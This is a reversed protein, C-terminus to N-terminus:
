SKEAKAANLISQVENLKATLDSIDEVPMKLHEVACQQITCIGDAIGRGADTLSVIVQREDEKSRVRVVFKMDELRKLLPTLTNSELFLTEGLQSVRQGDNELLALLTIYQPYTIGIEKMLSKYFRNFAHNAKYIAFCLHQDLGFGQFEQTKDESM